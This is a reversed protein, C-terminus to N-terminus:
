RIRNRHFPEVALEGTLMRRHMRQLEVGPEIGLEDVLFRYASQYASLAEGRRGSRYLAHLFQCWLRERMPYEITLARLTPLVVHHQGLAVRADILDERVAWRHEDLRASEARRIPLPLEEFPEGRWLELAAQLHEV